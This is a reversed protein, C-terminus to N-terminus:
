ASYILAIGLVIGLFGFLRLKESPSKLFYEMLPLPKKTAAYVLLMVGKALGIVGFLAVFWAVACERAAMILLVGLVVNLAGFFYQRKGKKAFNMLNKALSPKVLYAASFVLVVIGILKVFQYM